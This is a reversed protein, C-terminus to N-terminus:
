KTKHVENYFKILAKQLVEPTNSIAKLFKESSLEKGGYAIFIELLQNNLDTLDFGFETTIAIFNSAIDVLEDESEKPAITEIRSPEILKVISYKGDLLRVEIKDNLNYKFYEKKMRLAVTDHKPCYVYLFSSSFRSVYGIYTKGNNEFNIKEQIEQVASTYMAKHKKATESSLQKMKGSPTDKSDCYNSIEIDPIQLEKLLEITQLVDEETETPFGSIFRTYTIKEKLLSFYKKINKVDHGVNMLKLIRDSGSQIDIDVNLILDNKCIEEIVEDYIDSLSFCGIEIGEIGEIKSLRQILVHLMKKGYLDIGYQASNLARLEIYKIGQSVLERVENEIEEISVSRLPRNSYHVRCFTCKNLCGEAIEVIGKIDYPNYSNNVPPVGLIKCIEEVQNQDPVIYDINYKKLFDKKYEKVYTICGTVILKCTEKKCNLIDQLEQEALEINIDTCSCFPFIIWDAEKLNRVIQYKDRCSNLIKYNNARRCSTKLICLKEMM